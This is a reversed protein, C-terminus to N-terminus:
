PVLSFSECVMSSEKNGWCDWESNRYSTIHVISCDCPWSLVMKERGHALWRCNLFYHFSLPMKIEKYKTLKKLIWGQLSTQKGESFNYPNAQLEAYFAFQKRSDPITQIWNLDIQLALSDTSNLLSWLKIESSATLIHHSSKLVLFRVNEHICWHTMCM